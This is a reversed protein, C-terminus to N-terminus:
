LKQLKTTGVYFLVKKTNRNHLAYCPAVSSTIKKDMKMSGREPQLELAQKSSNRPMGGGAGERTPTSHHDRIQLAHSEILLHRTCYPFDM